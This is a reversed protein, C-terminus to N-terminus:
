DVHEMELIESWRLCRVQHGDDRWEITPAITDCRGSEMYFCRPHFSCAPPPLAADPVNGPIVKLRESEDLEQSLRPLSALLGQTYPHLPKKMTIRTGASEVVQGAYMVIVREAVEAVVGLDHTIFLVSMHRNTQLEKILDLIQAQITVDLATTPEDAILLHPDCSLAMAIMVRQRMGGSLEHPYSELRKGPEPIGVNFLIEEAMVLAENKSKKLHLTIVEAIQDGVNYVPNLSTMPEQFIMAIENGRIRRMEKESAKVLDRIKGNRDRWWIEGHAIKSINKPLLRMVSLSSVSKGCASEGM